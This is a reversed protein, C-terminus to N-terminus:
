NGKLFGFANTISDGVAGFIDGGPDDGEKGSEGKLVGEMEDTSWLTPSTSLVRPPGIKRPIALTWDDPFSRYLVGGNWTPVPNPQLHYVSIFEEKFFKEQEPSEFRKESFRPNVVIILCGMGLENAASELAKLQKTGPAVVVLVETGDPVQLRISALDYVPTTLHPICLREHPPPHLAAAAYLSLSIAVHFNIQFLLGLFGGLGKSRFMQSVASTKPQASADSKAGFGGGGGSRSKTKKGKSDIVIMKGRYSDGWKKSAKNALTQDPFAVVTSAELETGKFMEAIVRALERDSRVQLDGCIHNTVICTLDNTGL